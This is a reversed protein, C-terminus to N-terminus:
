QRKRISDISASVIHKFRKPGINNGKHWRSVIIIINYLNHQLLVKRLIQDGAGKEGCDYSGQSEHILKPTNPQPIAKKHKNQEKPSAKIDNDKSKDIDDDVQQGVRWAYIYPHSATKCIYKHEKTFTDIIDHVQDPHTITIHRAQFESKRDRIIDSTNWKDFSSLRQPITLFHINWLRRKLLPTTYRFSAKGYLFLSM